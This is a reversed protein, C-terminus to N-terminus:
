SGETGDESGGDSSAPEEESVIRATDKGNVTQRIVNYVRGTIITERCQLIYHEYIHQKCENVYKEVQYIRVTTALDITSVNATNDARVFKRCNERSRRESERARALRLEREIESENARQTANQRNRNFRERQENTM